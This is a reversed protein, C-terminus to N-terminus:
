STTPDIGDLEVLFVFPLPFRQGKKIRAMPLGQIKMGDLATGTGKGHANYNKESPCFFGQCYNGM